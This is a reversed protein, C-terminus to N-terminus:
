QNASVSSIKLSVTLLKDEPGAQMGTDISSIEMSEVIYVNNYTEIKNIFKALTHYDKVSVKLDFIEKTYASKSERQAPKLSIIKVGAAKGIDGIDAMVASADRKSLLNRYVALRQELKSIKELESNKKEEENIRAKLSNANSNGANFINYAIFLAVIIIGANLLMNKLKDAQEAQAM